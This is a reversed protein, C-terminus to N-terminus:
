HGNMVHKVIRRIEAVEVPKDVCRRVDLRVRDRELQRCGHATIWIVPTASSLDRISETLAVGGIGPMRLDTIVLDPMRGRVTDLAEEGSEATVVEYGDGM